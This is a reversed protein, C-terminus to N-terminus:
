PTEPTCALREVAALCEYAEGSCSELAELRVSPRSMRACVRQRRAEREPPAIMELPVFALVLAANMCGTDSELECANVYLELATDASQPTADTGLDFAYGLDVCADAHGADCARRFMAARGLSGEPFVYGNRYCAEISGLVCGRAHMAYRRARDTDTATEDTATMRALLACASADRARCARATREYLTARRSSIADIRGPTARSEPALPSTSSAGALASVDAGVVLRAGLRRDVRRLAAELAPTEDLEARPALVYRTGSPLARVGELFPLEDVRRAGYVFVRPFRVPDLTSLVVVLEASAGGGVLVCGRACPDRGLDRADLRARVYDLAAQERLTWVDFATETRGDPDLFIVEGRADTEIVAELIADDLTRDETGLVVTPLREGESVPQWTSGWPMRDIRARFADLEAFPRLTPHARSPPADEAAGLVEATLLGDAFRDTIAARVADADGGIWVPVFHDTPPTEEWTAELGLLEFPRMPRAGLGRYLRLAAERSGMEYVVGVELGDDDLAMGARLATVDSSMGFADARVYAAIPFAARTEELGADHSPVDPGFACADQPVPADGVVVHAGSCVRLHARIQSTEEGPAGITVRMTEATAERDQERLAEFLAPAFRGYAHCRVAHAESVLCRLRAIHIAPADVGALAGEVYGLAIGYLLEVEDGLGSARAAAVDIDIVAAPRADAQARTTSLWLGLCASSAALLFLFRVALLHAVLRTM